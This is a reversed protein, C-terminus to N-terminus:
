TRIKVFSFLSFSKKCLQCVHKHAIRIACVSDFGINSRKAYVLVKISM